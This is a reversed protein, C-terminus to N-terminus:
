VMSGNAALSGSTADMHDAVVAVTLWIVFDACDAMRDAAVTGHVVADAFSVGMRVAVLPQATLGM